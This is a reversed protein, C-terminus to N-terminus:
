LFGVLGMLDSLLVQDDGGWRGSQFDAGPTGQVRHFKWVEAKERIDERGIGNGVDSAHEGGTM